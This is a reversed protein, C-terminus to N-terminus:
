ILRFLRGDAALHTLYGLFAFVGFCSDLFLLPLSFILCSSLTHLFGRHGSLLSALLFLGLIVAFSASFLFYFVFCFFLFLLSIRSSWADVDPLLSFFLGVLFCSVSPYPLAISDIVLLFMLCCFLYVAVHTRYGSM